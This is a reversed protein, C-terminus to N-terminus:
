VYFSEMTDLCLCSLRGGPIDAGCDIAINGNGQWIEWKGNLAQTRVHGTVINVTLDAFYRRGYDHPTLLTEIEGYSRLSREKAFNGLSAHVLM